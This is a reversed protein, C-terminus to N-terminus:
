VGRGVQLRPPAPTAMSTLIRTQLNMQSSPMPETDSASSHRRSHLSAPAVMLLLLQPPTGLERSDHSRHPHSAAQSGTPLFPRLSHPASLQLMSCLAGTAQSGELM